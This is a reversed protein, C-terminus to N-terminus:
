RNGRSLSWIRMVEEPDDSLKAIKEAQERTLKGLDAALRPDSGLPFRTMQGQVPLRFSSMAESPKRLRKAAEAVEPSRWYGPSKGLDRELAPIIDFMPSDGEFERALFRLAEEAAKPNTAELERILVRATAATDQMDSVEDLSDVFRRVDEIPATETWEVAARARSGGSQTRLVDALAEHGGAAIHAAEGPLPKALMRNIERLRASDAESFSPDDHSARWLKRSEKHLAERTPAGPIHGAEHLVSEPDGRGMTSILEDEPTEMGLAHRELDGTFEPDIVIQRENLDKWKKLAVEAEEDTMGWLRKRAADRQGPTLDSQGVLKSLERRSSGPGWAPGAFDTGTVPDITSGPQWRRDPALHDLWEDGTFDPDEVRERVRRRRMSAELIEDGSMAPKKLPPALDPRLVYAAEVAKPDLGPPPPTGPPGDVWDALMQAQKEESAVRKVSHRYRPDLLGLHDLWEDETAFHDRWSERGFEYEPDLDPKRGGPTEWKKKAMESLEDAVREAEAPSAGNAIAKAKAIKRMRLLKATMAGAGFGGAAWALANWASEWDGELGYLTASGIDSAYTPDAMSSAALMGQAGTAESFSEGEEMRRRAEMMRGSPLINKMYYEGPAETFEEYQEGAWDGAAEGVIGAGRSVRGPFESAFEGAGRFFGGVAALGPDYWSEEAEREEVMQQLEPDLPDPEDFHAEAREVALAEELPDRGPM